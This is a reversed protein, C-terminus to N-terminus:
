KSERYEMPTLGTERKFFNNFAPPNAFHLRDAIEYTLLTSTHLLVKARLVVAHNIWYLASHGSARSIVASLHGNIQGACGGKDGDENGHVDRGAQQSGADGDQEEM